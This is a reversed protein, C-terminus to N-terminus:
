DAQIEANQEKRSELVHCITSKLKDIQVPKAIHTDMGSEIADRVDDVFANATMAIIPVTKADPRGGGRITRTATYGDMVPMQVDMLILDYGGPQSAEFKDVAEQGNEATDCVAGMTGLIKILIIRNVEIDDVVLVHKGRIAEGSPEQASAKKESGMVRQIAEKFTSIFFPKPMFHNVGIEMAEQEIDSWDYATLLLIPIKDSYTKRILRATELGNLGPMQWDLLILNYPRSEGHAAQMMEIAQSGQTAYDTQVGTLSMIKVINRCVDEDDDTVIIRTLKHRNWFQPDDKKDQIRLELEVTFKSGKNLESEVRIDGNMLDVLSKTIAMGLGTGQIMHTIATEERTFPDFIVKLYEPSMGMGNDSITFRIRSYNDVVQPLEEVQMRITGGEQTYKVSNSLLNILIQNVRLKDGLLHENSLRSAFLEFTQNKAKAQPRIISNLEEIMEALNMEAITLTASGSEIKNMDLVDNILGLLHQSAAEIRQTYERVMVPNEAEDKMLGLFGIIANMPTRIDHSVNSLFSSKADNAAQAMRLADTLSDQTKREATRDSIYAVRKPRGQILTVCASEMFYKREGTQPNIRETNRCEAIGGPPLSTVEEYYALTGEPDAAMDGQKIFELMEEPEVGMVRDVNPSIFEVKETEHDMLLYIDDINNAIYSAFINFMQQQYAIEENKSKIEMQTSKIERQTRWSMLVFGGCIFLMLVLFAVAMQSDLLIRDTESWVAEAPAVSVLYWGDVNTSPVYTYIFEGADGSLIISGTEQNELATRFAAADQESVGSLGDFLNTGGSGSGSRLLIDGGANVVYAFGQNNYFALSFTEFARERDFSKQVLGQHGNPFTFSEYYGFRTTGSFLSTYTDQVGSGDLSRYLALNDEDLTRIEDFSTGCVWGSDLCMVLSVSDKKTFLRLLRRAEEPDDEGDSALFQAIAHLRERDEALVNDLAQQQQVTVTMLNQVANQHLSNRLRVVYFVGGCLIVAMCIMILASMLWRQYQKIKELM